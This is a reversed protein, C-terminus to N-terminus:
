DDAQEDDNPPASGAPAIQLTTLVGDIIPEFAESDNQRYAFLLIHWLAGDVLAYVRVRVGGSALAIDTEYQYASGAPLEIRRVPREPTYIDGLIDRVRQEVVEPSVAFAVRVDERLTVIGRFSVFDGLYGTTHDALYAMAADMTLGTGQQLTSAFFAVALQPSAPRAMSEPVSLSVEGYTYTTWGDPITVPALYRVGGVTPVTETVAAAANTSPATNQAAETVPIPTAAAPAGGPQSAVLVVVVVVLTLIVALGVMPAPVSPLGRAAARGVVASSPVIIMDAPPQTASPQAASKQAAAQAAKVAQFKTGTSTFFKTKPNEPRESTPTNLIAAIVTQVGAQYADGRVDAYQIMGRGLPIADHWHEGHVWVPFIPKDLNTAIAIEDRVFDSDRSHPSAILVVADAERLAARIADEWDPTGVQLGMHDIWVGIDAAQFDRRLRELYEMDTRAYSIFVRRKAM